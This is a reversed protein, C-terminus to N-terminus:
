LGLLQTLEEFSDVVHEAGAQKLREKSFSTTIGIPLCGAGKASIIGNDSDEIVICIAPDLGLREAAKQYPEPHPKGISVMDGTILADFHKHLDFQHFVAEQVRQSSSTALGIKDFRSRVKELFEVVGPILSLRSNALELYTSRKQESLEEANLSGDTFNNIIYQFITQNTKGKFNDWESLPININNEKCVFRESEVQLPESDVLVGDMDFIIAKFNKM